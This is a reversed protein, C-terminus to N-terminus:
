PKGRALEEARIQAAELTPHVSDSVVRWGDDFRYVLRQEAGNDFWYMETATNILKEWGARLTLEASPEVATM